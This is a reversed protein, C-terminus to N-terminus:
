GEILCARVSPCVSACVCAHVCARMCESKTVCVRVLDELKCQMPHFKLSVENGHESMGTVAERLLSLAREYGASLTDQGNVSLLLHGTRTPPISIYSTTISDLSIVVVAACQARNSHHKADTALSYYGMRPFHM